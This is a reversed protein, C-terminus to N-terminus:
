VASVRMNRYYMGPYFTAIQGSSIRGSDVFVGNGAIAGLTSPKVSLSFVPADKKLRMRGCPAFESAANGELLSATRRLLRLAQM